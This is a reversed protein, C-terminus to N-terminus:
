TDTGPLALETAAVSGIWEAFAEGPLPRSVHYGQIRDCGLEALCELTAADEVGEAVITVGLDHALNITSRVIILDSTDHLMPTVFSRDIKLEDIPLRSLYALSSYGTGFDDVSFRVGLHSLHNITAVAREPDSMIMSETIELQLAQPPLSYRALMREIDRSLGRDLLNRVSLNVSVTLEHDNERWGACDALARELVHRTLGGILGTQEVIPIFTNPPILGHEPHEWRVLAEAGHPRLGDVDVIPQYHVVIEDCELARRFESIVSLRQISNRDQDTAYLKFGSQAEKAAYMAIDARRLLTHADEGDAPYRAIGVSAGVELSLEDVVFPLRVCGLLRQACQELEVAAETRTGTLVAFEDGGLRAVVGSPGVCAALRPGLDQLLSDGYDHGLTDNIEKFRDLDLLLVGFSGDAQECEQIEEELRTRFLERNALGTLDDTTAMRHLQKSRRQSMLLEGVLYQFIVLILGLLAIGTAGLRVAVYVAAMTLLASFLESALIPAFADTFKDAISAGDLHCQYGAVMLFNLALAFVFMVFILLYYGVDGSDLRTAHAVVHFFLGGLLPFWAFTVLNNRFYHSAERSRLWGVAIALMGIVAAPPGGLVAAALMLGLFSASIKVRQSSTEVCTLDGVVTLLAILVFSVPKWSATDATLVIVAIAATLAIGHVIALARDLLRRAQGMALSTAHAEMCDTAQLGCAFAGRM